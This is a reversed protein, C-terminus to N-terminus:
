LLIIPCGCKLKLNTLPLESANLSNLFEVPVINPSHQTGPETVQTDASTYVRMEGPFLHIIESNLKRVDDNLPALLVREYFYQPAPPALLPTSGYLSRILDDQDACVMEHPISISGCGTNADVTSGRGIDLLWEAFQASLPDHTLRM